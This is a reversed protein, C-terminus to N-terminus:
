SRSLAMDKVKYFYVLKELAKSAISFLDVTNAASQMASMMM